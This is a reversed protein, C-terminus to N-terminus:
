SEPSQVRLSLVRLSYSETLELVGDGTAVLSQSELARLCFFESGGHPELVSLTDSESVRLSQFELVREVRLSQCEILIPLPRRGATPPLSSATTRCAWM